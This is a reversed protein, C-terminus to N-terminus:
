MRGQMPPVTTVGTGGPPGGVMGPLASTGSMAGMSMQSDKEKGGRTTKEHPNKFM